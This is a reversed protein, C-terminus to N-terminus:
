FFTYLFPSLASTQALLLFLGLILLVLLVPYLWWKKRLWLHQVLQKVVKIKSM